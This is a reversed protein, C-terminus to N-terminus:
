LFYPPSNIHSFSLQRRRRNLFTFASLVLLFGVSPEPVPSLTITASVDNVAQGSLFGQVATSTVYRDSPNQTHFNVTTSPTGGSERGSVVLGFGDRNGVPFPLNSLTTSAETGGHNTGMSFGSFEGNFYSVIAAVTNAEVSTGSLTLSDLTPVYQRSTGSSSFQSDDITLSFTGSGSELPRISSPTFDATFSGSIVILAAHTGGTLLGSTLLGTFFLRAPSSQKM